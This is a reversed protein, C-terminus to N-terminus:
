TRDTEHHEAEQIGLGLCLRVVDALREGLATWDAPGVGELYAVTVWAKLGDATRKLQAFADVEEPVPADGLTPNDWDPTPWPLVDDM